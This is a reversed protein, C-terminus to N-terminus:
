DASTPKGLQRQARLAVDIYSRTGYDSVKVIGVYDRFRSQVVEKKLKNLHEIRNRNIFERGLKPFQVRWWRWYDESRELHCLLAPNDEEMMELFSLGTEYELETYQDQSMGTVGRIVSAWNM